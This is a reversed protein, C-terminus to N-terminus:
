LGIKINNSEKTNIIPLVDIGKAIRNFMNKKEAKDAQSYFESINKMTEYDYMGSESLIKNFYYIKDVIVLPIDFESISKLM